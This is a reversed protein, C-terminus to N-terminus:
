VLFRQLMNEKCPFKQFNPVTDRPVRIFMNLCEFRQWETTGKGLCSIVPSVYFLWVYARIGTKGHLRWRSSRTACFAAGRNSQKKKKKKKKLTRWSHNRSALHYLFNSKITTKCKFLQPAASFDNRPQKLCAIM